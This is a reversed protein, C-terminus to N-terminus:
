RLPPKPILSIVATGDLESKGAAVLMRFLTLAQSSMPMALHHQHAAEQLMELDKLIQRAYGRPVFDEDVMRALAIPLLNSGAHGAALAEPIKKADVGYAQALRVAEAIVCYNTLVLTQNVLKTAQGAGVGGMHTFTGLKEMVPAVKRIAADEGGAMIALTGARAADPGGSVPADIFAMGTRSALIEAQAKTAGIETTSHDVLVKGDLRGATVIGNPGSVVDEVAATNVVCVLVVDAQKAVEAASAAPEVGNAKAHAVKAADIDFGVVRHGTEKLRATFGQGMLGLGIFGITQTMASGSAEHHRPRDAPEGCPAGLFRRSAAAACASLAKADRRELAAMIAEHDAVAAAWNGPIDNGRFRIRKMRAHLLAHMARLSENRAIRVIALHIDQNLHFYEAREKRRYLDLMEDHRARITKIEADTANACALEGALAELRAIVRLMDRAAAPGIRSVVAGRNPLIEVLGEVALVKFAERLPTRSVGLQDCLEREVIRSGEPLEGAVILDRLRATVAEHLSRWEIPGGADIERAAETQTTTAIKM